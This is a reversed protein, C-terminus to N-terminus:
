GSVPDESGLMRDSTAADVDKLRKMRVGWVAVIKGMAITDRGRSRMIDHTLQVAVHLYADKMAKSLQKETADGDEGVM